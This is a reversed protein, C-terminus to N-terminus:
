RILERYVKLGQQLENVDHVRIIQVGQQLAFISSSLTGGLRDTSDNEKSIDKIFRKRSIGLLIPFGLTHFISINKLIEVNHNLNKGFGIGPDLIIKNHRIGLKRLFNIKKEFFDYIELVVNKYKPNLQMTEPSGLSHQLIFPVNTKKLLNITEKDYSLGSVDNIIHAGLSLSKKMISAKRTDVSIINKKKIKKLTKKIRNWEEKESIAKSGPRTSEGGVDVIKAGDKFLKYMQKTAKQYENFKGGDSFSDPTINLIGMLHIENNFNINLFSKVKKTINLLDRRVQKKLYNPLKNIEHISIKRSVNRSIIQINDFSIDKRNNLPLTKKLNILKRSNKGYYFNCARTYYRNM